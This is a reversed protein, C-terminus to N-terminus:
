EDSLSLYDNDLEDNSSNNEEEDDDEEEEEEEEEEVNPAEEEVHPAGERISAAMKERNLAQLYILRHATTKKLKVYKNLYLHKLLAQAGTLVKSDGFDRSLASNL